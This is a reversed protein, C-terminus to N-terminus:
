ASWTVYERPSWDPPLTAETLAGAVRGENAAIAMPEGRMRLAGAAFPRLGLLVEFLGRGAGLLLVREGSAVFSLGDSVPVGDIDIRLAEASLLPESTALALVARM